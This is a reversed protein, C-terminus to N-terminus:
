RALLLADRLAFPLTRGQNDIKRALRDIAGALAAGSFSRGGGSFAFDEAGREGALFLTPRTVRGMGGAAQPIVPIDPGSGNDGVTIGAAATGVHDIAVGADVLRSILEDLKKVIKDFGETMTESFHIGADELDTIANGADDTLEGQELMKQLIPKMAAPVETGLKIATHIYDNIADSMQANVQTIDIGAGVLVRWDEILDKAQEDLKQKQLTPGLQELSFGYKEIAAQLRAQDAAQDDAFEGLRAQLDSVAKEFDKVKNARLLADVNTGALRAKEALVDLGGASSIFSDRLDNVKKGESGFLKGFLNGIGKVALGIGGSILSSLGGSLMQGLGNVLGGGLGSLFGGVGGGGTMGQLLKDFGGTLGSLFSPGKGGGGIGTGPVAGPLGMLSAIPLMRSELEKFAPLVGQIAKPAERGFTGAWFALDHMQAASVLLAPNLQGSLKKALAETESTLAAVTRSATEIPLMLGGSPAGQSTTLFGLNPRGTSQLTQLTQVRLLADGYALSQETALKNAAAAEAQRKAYESTVKNLGELAPALPALVQTLFVRGTNTLSTWADGLRDGAAIQEDTAVVARNMDKQLDQFVPILDAGSRGLLQQATALQETKSPLDGIAKAVQKFAEDPSMQQLDQLSLGLRELAPVVAGDGEVLNKSLLTMAQGIQDISSGSQQAAFDFRQVAERSIGLKKSLDDVHGAWEGTNKIAGIIAGASFSAAVTAGVKAITSSLVTFADSPKKAADALAQIKPPVDIGLKKMKEAAEAALSGARQLESGTLTSTGGMREIAEASLTAQQIISRGSFSDGIRGLAREVNASGSTLDKLKLNAKEVASTFSSFDAAFTASVAM